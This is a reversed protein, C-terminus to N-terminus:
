PLIFKSRDQSLGQEDYRVESFVISKDTNQVIINSSRTGYKSSCIFISSLLQEWEVPIGTEPLTDTEAQSRDTLIRLLEDQDIKSDCHVVAELQKEGRAMKPWKDNISGNSIAYFGKTLPSEKKSVSNFCTLKDLSGYILNFPNYNDSNQNLWVKSMTSGEQLALTVLEGRSRRESEPSNGTRINTVAAFRGARNIGLWSGGARLDKGALMDPISEWYHAAQTPRDHFEDRNACIIVPHETHQRIALFLICM